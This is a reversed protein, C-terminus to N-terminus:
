NINKSIRWGILLGLLLWFKYKILTKHCIKYILRSFYFFVIKM